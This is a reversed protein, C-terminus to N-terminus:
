AAAFYRTRLTLMHMMPRCGQVRQRSKATYFAATPLCAFAAHAIGRKLHAHGAECARDDKDRCGRHSPEASRATM